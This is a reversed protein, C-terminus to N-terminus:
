NMEIKEPLLTVDRLQKTEVLKEYAKNIIDISYHMNHNYRNEYLRENNESLLKKFVSALSKRSLAGSMKVEYIKGSKNGVLIEASDIKLKDNKEFSIVYINKFVCDINNECNFEIYYPIDGLAVTPEIVISNETVNKSFGTLIKFKSKM